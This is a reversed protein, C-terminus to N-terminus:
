AKLGAEAAIAKMAAWVRKKAGADGLSGALDGAAGVVRGNALVPAGQELPPIGLAAALDAAAADDLTIVVSPDAAELALALRREVEGSDGGARSALVFYEDRGLGLAAASKEAAEGAAGCLPQGAARDAASPLSIVFVLRSGPSGRWARVGGPALPFADNLEVAAKDAYLRDLHQTSM